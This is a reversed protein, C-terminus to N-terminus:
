GKSLLNFSNNAGPSIWGVESGSALQQTAACYDMGLVAAAHGPLSRLCGAAAAALGQGHAAAALLSAVDLAHVGGDSAGAYFLLCWFLSSLM